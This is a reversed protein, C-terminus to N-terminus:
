PKPMCEQNKLSLQVSLHDGPNPETDSTRFTYNEFIVPGISTFHAANELTHSYNSDLDVTHISVNFGKEVALPNFYGGFVGDNSQGDNHNGDDCLLTSDCYANDTSVIEAMVRVKHNEPNNLHAIINLTDQNPKVFSNALETDYPHVKDHPYKYYQLVIGFLQETIM